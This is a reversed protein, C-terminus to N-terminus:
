NQQRYVSIRVGKYYNSSAHFPKKESLKAVFEKEHPNLDQYSDVVIVRSYQSIDRDIDAWSNCFIVHEAEPLAEKRLKLFDRDYYYGFLPKVDKTKVIVLDGPAKLSKIFSVANKYDMSKETKYNLSFVSKVFFLLTFSMPIVQYRIYSLSFSILLIVFPVSFLLYRDLFVPMFMGVLYLVIVSGPGMLFCYVYNFGPVDRRFRYTLLIGLLILTLFPIIMFDYFLIESCVEALHRFTSKELWFPHDSSNFGAILLFQKKTFRLIVLLLTLAVSWFFKIKSKREFYLLMCIAQFLLALGAIYHTYIILFNILGLLLANIYSPKEKLKFFLWSALLCLLVCLSYARAEHSYFLLIDSSLYLLSAIFATTKNFFRNCFLFFVGGALSSFVVSLLRVNFETDKFFCLWTKLCYYYFPPNNDWESVHKIHGFELSASQLSIIEDYWFSSHDLCIVRLCVNVFIALSFWLWLWREIKNNNYSWFATFM